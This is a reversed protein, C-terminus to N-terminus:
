WLFPLGPLLDALWGFPRVRHITYTQETLQEGEWVECLGVQNVWPTVIELGGPSTVSTCGMAGLCLGGSLALIKATKLM